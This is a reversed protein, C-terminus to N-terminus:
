RTVDFLGNMARTTHEVMCKEDGVLTANESLGCLARYTDHLSFAAKSQAIERQPLV